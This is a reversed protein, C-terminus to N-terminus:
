NKEFQGFSCTIHEWMSPMCHYSLCLIASISVGMLFCSVVTVSGYFKGYGVLCMHGTGEPRFEEAQSNKLAVPVLSLPRPKIRQPMRRKRYSIAHTQLQTTKEGSENSYKTSGRRSEM